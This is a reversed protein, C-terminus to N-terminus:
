PMMTFNFDRSQIVNEEGNYNRDRAITLSWRVTVPYFDCFRWTMGMFLIWEPVYIRADRRRM